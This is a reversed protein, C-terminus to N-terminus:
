ISEILEVCGYKEAFKRDADSLKYFTKIASVATDFDTGGVIYDSMVSAAQSGIEDAYAKMSVIWRYTCEIIINDLMKEAIDRFKYNKTTWAKRYDDSALWAEFDKNYESNNDEPDDDEYKDDFIYPAGLM